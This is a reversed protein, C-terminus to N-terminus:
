VNQELDERIDMLTTVPLPPKRPRFHLLFAKKTSRLMTALAPNQSFKAMVAKKHEEAERQAFDPDVHLSPEGDPPHQAAQLGLHIDRSIDSDSELSFQKAFEPFQKRYKSGEMYHAVSSYTLQDVIFPHESWSDDLKRRWMPIAHLERYENMKEVVM